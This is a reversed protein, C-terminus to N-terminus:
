KFDADKVTGDTPPAQPATGGGGLPYKNGGIKTAWVVSKPVDRLSLVVYLSPFFSYNRKFM